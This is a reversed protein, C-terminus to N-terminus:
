GRTETASCRDGLFLVYIVVRVVRVSSDRVKKPQTTTAISITRRHSGKGIPPQNPTLQSQPPSPLQPSPPPQTPQPQTPYLPPKEYQFNIEALYKPRFEINSVPKSLSPSRRHYVQQQQQLQQQVKAMYTDLSCNTFFFYCCVLLQQQQQLLTKPSCTDLEVSQNNM